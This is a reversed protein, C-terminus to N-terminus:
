KIPDFLFKPIALDCVLYIYLAVSGDYYKKVRGFPLTTFPDNLSRPRISGINEREEISPSFEMRSGYAIRLFHRYPQEIRDKKRTRLEKDREKARDRSISSANM